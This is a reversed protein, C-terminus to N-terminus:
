LIESKPKSNLVSRKYLLPLNEPLALMPSHDIVRSAFGSFIRSFLILIIGEQDCYAALDNARSKKQKVFLVDARKAASM